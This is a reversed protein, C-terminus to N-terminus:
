FAKNMAQPVGIELDRYGITKLFAIVTPVPSYCILCHQLKNGEPVGERPDCYFYIPAKLQRMM